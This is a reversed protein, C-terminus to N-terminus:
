VKKMMREFVNKELESGSPTKDYIYRLEDFTLKEFFREPLDEYFVVSALGLGFNKKLENFKERKEYDSKNIYLTHKLKMINELALRNLVIRSKSQDYVFLWEDFTEALESMKELALEKLSKKFVCYKYIFKWENFTEAFESMKELALEKLDRKFGSYKYILKWEGFTKKIESMKESAEKKLYSGSQSKSYILFWEDFSKTNGM